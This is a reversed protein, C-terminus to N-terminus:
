GPEGDQEPPPDPTVEPPQESRIWDEQTVVDAGAEFACAKWSQGDEIHTTIGCKQCTYVLIPDM